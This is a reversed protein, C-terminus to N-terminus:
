RDVKGCVTGIEVGDLLYEGLEFGDEALDSGVGELPGGVGDLAQALGDGSTKVFDRTSFAGCIECIRSITLGFPFPKLSGDQTLTHRRALVSRPPEAIPRPACVYKSGPRYSLAKETQTSWIGFKRSIRRM